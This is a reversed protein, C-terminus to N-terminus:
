APLEQQLSGAAPLPANLLAAVDLIGAGFSGPQQNPMPRASAKAVAKFAEVRQWAAPYATTLM